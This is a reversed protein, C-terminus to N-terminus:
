NIKIEFNYVFEEELVSISCKIKLEDYGIKDWRM